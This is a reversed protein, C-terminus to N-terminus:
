TRASPSGPRQLIIDRATATMEQCEEPSSAARAFKVQDCRRLFRLLLKQHEAPLQSSSRLTTFFETTTQELAPLQFRLALYKRVVDCLATYFREVETGSNQPWGSLREIEQLGCREPTLPVPTSGRRRWVSWGALFLALGTVSAGIWAILRWWSVAPPVAEPGSISRLQSTDPKL